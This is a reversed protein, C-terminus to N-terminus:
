TGLHTPFYGLLLLIKKEPQIVAEKNPLSYHIGAPSFLRRGRAEGNVDLRTVHTESM